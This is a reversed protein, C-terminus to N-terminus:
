NRVKYGNEVKTLLKDAPPTNLNVTEYEISTPGAAGILEHLTKPNDPEDFRESMCRSKLYHCGYHPAVQLRSLDRKAEKGDVKLPRLSLEERRRVWAEETAFVIGTQMVQKTQNIWSSPSSLVRERMGLNVMRAMKRPDYEPFIEHIPCGATCTGCSFCATIDGAAEHAIVEAKFSPDLESVRIPKDLMAM